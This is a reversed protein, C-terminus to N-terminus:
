SRECLHNSGQFHLKMLRTACSTPVDFIVLDPQMQQATLCAAHESAEEAIVELEPMAEQFRRLSERVLPHPVALMIRLKSRRHNAQNNLQFMNM